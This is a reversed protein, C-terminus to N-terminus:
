LSCEVDDPDYPTISADTCDVGKNDNENGAVIFLQDNGSDDSNATITAKTVDVYTGADIDINRPSVISAEEASIGTKAEVVIDANTKSSSLSGGRLYIAKESDIDIGGDGDMVVGVLNIGGVTSTVKLTKTDKTSSIGAGSLDVAAGTVAVDGKGSIDADRASINGTSTVELVGTDKESTIGSRTLTLDGGTTLVVDGLSIVSAGTFDATGTTEINVDGSASTLRTGIAYIPGDGGNLTIDNQTAILDTHLSIGEGGSLDITPAVITGVSRPIVLMKDSDAAYSGDRVDSTNVLVDGDAPNYIRDGNADEFPQGPDDVAAILGRDPSSPGGERTEVDFTVRDIENGDGDKVYVDFSDPVVGDPSSPATYVFTARGAEDTSTSWTGTDRAEVRAHDTAVKADVVPNNQADRVEVVALHSAGPPLTEGDGSIDVIYEPDQPTGPTDIGVRAIHLDYVKGGALQVVVTNYDPGTTYSAVHANPESALLENWTSESLRTALSIEIPTGNDTVSIYDTGASVPVVSFTTADQAGVNVDGELLVLSIRNGDVLSQTAGVDGSEYQTYRVVGEHTLAPDSQLYRYDPQYVFLQQDFEHVDGNWYGASSGVSQANAISATTPDTTRITGSGAAPSLFLARTPYDVGAEITARSPTGSSAKAIREDFTAFESEVSQLHEFETQQNWAPVASVQVMAVVSVVLAFAFMTGLIASAGREDTRLHSSDSGFRAALERSVHRLPSLIHKSPTKHTM